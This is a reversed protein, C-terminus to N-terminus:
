MDQEIESEELNLKENVRRQVEDIILDDEMAKLEEKEVEKKEFESFILEDAMERLRTKINRIGLGSKYCEEAMKDIEEKSLNLKVGYDKEVAKIPSNEHETILYKFDEVSLVDTACIKTIRSAVETIMGFDMLDQITLTESYPKVEERVAGFGLGSTSNEKAKTEVKTSFSGLLLWSWNKTNVITKTDEKEGIIMDGGGEFLKLFEGQLAANHNVGSSIDPVCIKDFEDLVIIPHDMKMAVRVVDTVKNAGKYGEQTMNGANWLVTEPYIKKLLEAGFSKGNGPPGSVLMVSNRDSIHNYLFLSLNKAYKDQKYMFRKIYKNIEVPNHIDPLAIYSDVAEHETEPTYEKSYFPIHREGNLIKMVRSEKESVLELKQTKSNWRMDAM